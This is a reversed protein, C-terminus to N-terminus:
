VAMKLRRSPCNQLVSAKKTQSDSAIEKTTDPNLQIGTCCAATQSNSPTKKKQSAECFFTRTTM